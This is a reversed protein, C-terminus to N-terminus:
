EEGDGSAALRFFFTTGQGPVSEVWIQGGHRQVIKKCIALGIGTGPYASREHLRQFLVFIREFYRPEIGIGNDQVSFVWGPAGVPDSEDREASVYVKIPRDSHFKIANALLNQFLQVLQSGDAMVVPLLGATIEAKNEEITVKLNVMAQALAEASAVATMLKGQTGVRSFMLLDNILRQMRVAGDVAYGIFEDADQDLRGKYRREILQMYSSVMRLPEQLDHSAVYAFQELEANSRALEERELALAKEAKKRATIDLTFGVIGRVEAGDRIPAIIQHQFFERGNVVVHSERDVINGAMAVQNIQQWEEIVDPPQQILQPTKGLISGTALITAPNELIGNGDMDRAWIEFPANDILARLLNERALAEREAQKRESIDRVISLFFLGQELHIIEGSMLADILQGSKVRFLAEFDQMRGKTRIQAIYDEREQENVWMNLETTTCGIMEERSFGTIRVAASNVDFIRGDPVSTLLIADPSSEFITEFKQQSAELAKQFLREQEQERFVLVVGSMLHAIEGTSLDQNEVEAVPSVLIPAASDAIARENGARDILLTHNALGVVKGERLVREVPNEVPQRTDESIIIFVQGLPKGVAEAESWGTLKEAVPNLRTVLGSTDTAIVGDGIGYLTARIEEQARVRERESLFLRQYMAGQRSTAWLTVLSGTMLVGLIALVLTMRQHYDAEAMIEARSIKTVMFWNSDPVARLDALVATGNYDFGEMIGTHGLVAQVAPVSTETLAVWLKLPKEPRHRLANLYLAFEGEQRVLLTEASESPTPWSKVLPYLVKEPDSRLILVALPIDHKLLAAVTDLYVRDNNHDIAFDGLLARKEKVARLVLNQGALDIQGNNGRASLLLTGDPGALIVDQYGYAESMKELYDQIGARLETDTPKELWKQLIDAFYENESQAHADALREQRWASIQSVKLAAIGALDNYKETRIRQGEDRYYKTGLVIAALAFFVLGLLLLVSLNTNRIRAKRQVATEHFDPM